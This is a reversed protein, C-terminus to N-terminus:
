LLLVIQLGHDGQDLALFEVEGQLEDVEPLPWHAPSEGPECVGGARLGAREASGGARCVQSPLAVRGTAPRPQPVAIGPWEPPAPPSGPQPPIQPVKPLEDGCAPASPYTGVKM